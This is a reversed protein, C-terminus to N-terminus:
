PVAAARLLVAEWAGRRTVAGSGRGPLLPTPSSVNLFAKSEEQLDKLKAQWEELKAYSFIFDVILNNKLSM